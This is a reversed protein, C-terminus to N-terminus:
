KDKSLRKEKEEWQLKTITMNLATWVKDNMIRKKSNGENLQFGAKEYCKIAAINWDFVNLEVAPVGLQSFCINLLQKVVQYGMGKGRHAPNGILIRCLIAKDKIPMAIEAHGISKKTSLDVIKYALRKKESLYIELQPARLPFHFLPGAFQVLMEESDIWGILSAFDKKTFPELQIM